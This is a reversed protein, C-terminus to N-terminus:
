EDGSGEEDLDEWPSVVVTRKQIRAGPKVCASLRRAAEPLSTPDFLQIGYTIRETGLLDDYGVRYETRTETTEPM